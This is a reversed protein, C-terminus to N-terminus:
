KLEASTTKEEQLSVDRLEKAVSREIELTDKREELTKIDEHQKRIEEDLRSIEKKKEEIHEPIKSFPIDKSLNILAQLNSAIDQPPLGIRQCYEYIENIFSEVQNQNVGLKKITNIIRLGQACQVPDIGCRKLNVALDRLSQVDPIDLSRKWEDIINSVTGEGVGCTRAIDNRSLGQLYLRIVEDKMDNTIQNVMINKDFLIEISIRKLYKMKPLM